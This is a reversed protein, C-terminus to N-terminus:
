FRKSPWNICTEIEVANSNIEIQLFAAYHHTMFPMQFYESSNKAASANGAASSNDDDIFNANLNFHGSNVKSEIYAQGDNFLIEKPKTSSPLKSVISYPPIYIQRQSQRRCSNTLSHAKLTCLCHATFGATGRGTGAAAACADITITNRQFKLEAEGIDTVAKVNQIVTATASSIVKQLAKQVPTLM